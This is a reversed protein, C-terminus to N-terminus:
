RARCDNQACVYIFTCPRFMIILPLSMTELFLVTKRLSPQEGFKKRSPVLVKGVASRYDVKRGWGGGM